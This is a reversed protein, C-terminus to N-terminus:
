NFRKYILPKFEEKFIDKDSVLSYVKSARLEMDLYPHIGEKVKSIINISDNKKIVNLYDKGKDNM